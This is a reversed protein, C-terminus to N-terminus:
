KVRIEVVPWDNTGDFRDPDKDKQANGHIDTARANVRYKGKRDFSILAKWFVWVNDADLNQVIAAEKWSKGGDPTVEVKGIRTGGFAAGRIEVPVGVEAKGKRSPYFITCDVPMPPSCDWGREEWYDKITHDLVEIKTVWAPQKVGYYGPNIIRLPFGGQTAPLIEGNMYLAGMVGNDRVQEITHSAFYGDACEYKVAVAKESLGLSVLLDYLRFGRWVATSLLPGGNSNGICEVTLPVDEMPLALLDGLAFTRPSDVWGTVELKYTSGDIKPVEGIRTVYYDPNPTIFEPGSQSIAPSANAALSLALIAPIITRRRM